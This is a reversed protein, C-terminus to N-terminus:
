IKWWFGPQVNMYFKWWSNTVFNWTKFLDCQFTFVLIISCDGSIVGDLQQQTIGLLTSFLESLYWETRTNFNFYKLESLQWIILINEDVESIMVNKHWSFWLTFFLINNRLYKSVKIGLIILSIIWYASWTFKLLILVVFLKETM